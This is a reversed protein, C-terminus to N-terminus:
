FSESCFLTSGGSIAFTVDPDYGTDLGLWKGCDNKLRKTSIKQSFHFLFVHVPLSNGLFFSYWPSQGHRDYNNRAVARIRQAIIREHVDGRAAETMM